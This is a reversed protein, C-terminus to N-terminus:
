AADTSAVDATAPPNFMSRLFEGVEPSPPPAARGAAIAKAALDPGLIALLGEWTDTM